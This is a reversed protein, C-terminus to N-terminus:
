QAVGQGNLMQFVLERIKSEADIFKSPGPVRTADYTAQALKTSGATDTMWINAFSMYTALDWSWNAVYFGLAGCSEVHDPNWQPQWLNHQLAYTGDVVVPTIDNAQFEETLAVLVGPKVAEHKVICITSPAAASLQSIEQTAACGGLGMLSLVLIAIRNKMRPKGHNHDTRAGANYVPRFALVQSFQINLGAFVPND